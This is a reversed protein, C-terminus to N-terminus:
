RTDSHGKVAQWQVDSYGKPLDDCYIVEGHNTFTLRGKRKHFSSAHNPAFCIRVIEYLCFGAFVLDGEDILPVTTKIWWHGENRPAMWQDYTPPDDQWKSMM